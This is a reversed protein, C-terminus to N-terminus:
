KRGYLLRDHTREDTAGIDFTISSDFLPDGETPRNIDEASAALLDRHLLAFETLTEVTEGQSLKRGRLDGLIQSAKNLKGKQRATLRITTM